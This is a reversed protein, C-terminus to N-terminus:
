QLEGLMYDVANQVEQDSCDNCGGKAPMANYGNIAHSYLTETDKDLRGSWEGSKGLKPAGAAGSNHCAGCAASYVENGPRHSQAKNQAEKRAEGAINVNGEPEIRQRIRDEVSALTLASGALALVLGVSAIRKTLKTM